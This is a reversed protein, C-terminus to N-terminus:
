ARKEHKKIQPEPENLWYNIYDERSMNTHDAKPRIIRSKKRNPQPPPKKIGERQIYSTIISETVDLEMAMMYATEDGYNERIYKKQDSSLKNRQTKKLNLKRLWYDISVSKINLISSIQANTYQIYNEKLWSEIEPTLKDPM